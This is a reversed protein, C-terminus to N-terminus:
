NKWKIEGIIFYEKAKAITEETHGM